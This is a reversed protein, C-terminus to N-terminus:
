SNLPVLSSLYLLSLLPLRSPLVPLLLLILPLLLLLLLSLPDLLILLLNLLLFIICQTFTQLTPERLPPAYQYLFHVLGSQTSLLYPSRSYYKL